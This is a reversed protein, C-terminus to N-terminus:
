GKPGFVAFDHAYTCFSVSDYAKQFDVAVMIQEPLRELESRTFVIHDVMHMGLLFGKPEQPIVQQLADVMQLMVVTTVWKLCANQLALPRLDKPWEAGSFKPLCEM